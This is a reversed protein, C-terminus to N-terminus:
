NQRNLFVQEKEELTGNSEKLELELDDISLYGVTLGSLIGSFL